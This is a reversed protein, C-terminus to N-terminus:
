IKKIPEPKPGKYFTKAGPEPEGVSCSLKLSFCFSLFPLPSGYFLTFLPMLSFLSFNLFTLVFNIFNFSLHINSRIFTFYVSVSAFNSITHKLGQDYFSKPSSLPSVEFTTQRTSITKPTASFFIFLIRSVGRYIYITSLNFFLYM